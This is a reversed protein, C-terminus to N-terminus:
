ASLLEPRLQCFDLLRNGSIPALQFVGYVGVWLDAVALVFPCGQRLDFRHQVLQVL